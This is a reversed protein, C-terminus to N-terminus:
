YLLSFHLLIIRRYMIGYYFSIWTLIKYILYMMKDLNMFYPKLFDFQLCYLLGTFISIFYLIFLCRNLHLNYHYYSLFILIFSILFAVIQFKLNWLCNLYYFCGLKCCCQLGSQFATFHGRNLRFKFTAFSSFGLIIM